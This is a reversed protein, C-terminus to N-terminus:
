RAHPVEGGLLAQVELIRTYFAKNDDSGRRLESFLEGDKVFLVRGSHSAAFPDHTVMLITAGMNRNMDALTELLVASNRSDLAGTPEDALILQPGGMIARAAAVRQRQGGSMQAPYKDMVETVGLREAVSRVRAEIESARVGQISLALAINERGTLTEILNSDQFIFGLDDRRFKALAKGRLRSTETGGIVVSGSTPKDITAICNLLTTKGSGSPGMVAVFEGNEVSFSIGRLAYTPNGKGGFVRELRDVTLAARVRSESLPMSHTEAM